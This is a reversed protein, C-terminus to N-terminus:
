TANHSSVTIDLVHPCLNILRQIHMLNHQCSIPKVTVERTQGIQLSVQSTDSNRKQEIDPYCISLIVLYNILM